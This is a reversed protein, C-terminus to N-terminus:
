LKEIQQKLEDIKAEHDRQLRAVRPGAIQQLGVFRAVSIRITLM